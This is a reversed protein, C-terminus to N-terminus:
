FTSVSTVSSVGDHNTQADVGGIDHPARGHILFPRLAHLLDDRPDEVVDAAGAAEGSTQREWGQKM